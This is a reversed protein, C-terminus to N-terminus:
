KHTRKAKRRERRRTQGDTPPGFTAPDPKPLTIKIAECFPPALSPKGTAVIRTPAHIPEGALAAVEAVIDATEADNEALQEALAQLDKATPLKDMELVIPNRDALSAVIKAPMTGIAAGHPIIFIPRDTM